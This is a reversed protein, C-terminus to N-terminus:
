LLLRRCVAYGSAEQECRGQVPTPSFFAPQCTFDAVTLLSLCRVFVLAADYCISAADLCALECDDQTPTNPCSVQTSIMCASRCAIQLVETAKIPGADTSTDVFRGGDDRDNVNNGDRAEDIDADSTSSDFVAMTDREGSLPVLGVDTCGVSSLVAVSLLTNTATRRKSVESFTKV